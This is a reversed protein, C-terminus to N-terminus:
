QYLIEFSWPPLEMRLTIGEMTYPHGFRPSGSTVGLWDPLMVELSAPDDGKNFLAIVVQDFYKRVFVYTKETVQITSFNGYVLALNNKRLLALSAVTERTRSELPELSEFKMMRRSDPDNGGPIGLEDGYYIVPLGPITM